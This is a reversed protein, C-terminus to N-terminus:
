LHRNGVSKIYFWVGLTFVVNYKSPNNEQDVIQTEAVGLVKFDIVGCKYTARVLSAGQSNTFTVSGASSNITYGTAVIVPNGNADEIYIAPTPSAFWGPQDSYYTKHDGSDRLLDATPVFDIGPHTISAGVDSTTASEILRKFRARVDRVDQARKLSFTVQIVPNEKRSADGIVWQEQESETLITVLARPIQVESLVLDPTMVYANIGLSTNLEGANIFRALSARIM